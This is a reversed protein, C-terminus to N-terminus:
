LTWRHKNSYLIDKLRKVETILRKNEEVLEDILRQLEILSEFMSFNAKSLRKIIIENKNEDM